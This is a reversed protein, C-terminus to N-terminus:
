RLTSTRTRLYNLYSRESTMRESSFDVLPPAISTSTTPNEREARARAQEALNRYMNEDATRNEKRALEAAQLYTRVAVDDMHSADRLKSASISLENRPTEVKPLETKPVEVVPTKTNDEEPQTGHQPTTPIGPQGTKFSTSKKITCERAEWPMDKRTTNCQIMRGSPLVLMDEYTQCNLNFNPGQAVFIPRGALAEPMQDQRRRNVVTVATEDTGLCNVLRYLKEAATNRLRVCGGSARQGLENYHSPTTAHLAIGGHFFQAYPMDADWLTSHHNLVRTHIRFTGTKTTSFYTRGSKTKNEPQERGTSVTFRYLLEGDLYVLARQATDTSKGIGKDVIIELRPAEASTSEIISKKPDVGLERLLEDPSMFEDATQKTTQKTKAAATSSAAIAVSAFVFSHLVSRFVNKM